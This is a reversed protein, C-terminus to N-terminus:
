HVLPNAMAWRALEALAVLIAGGSVGWVAAAKGDRMATERDTNSRDKLVAIDEAHEATKGNLKDLRLNVGDIQGSLRKMWDEFERASVDPM